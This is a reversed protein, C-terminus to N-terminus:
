VYRGYGEFDGFLGFFALFGLKEEGSENHKTVTDVNIREDILRGFAFVHSM